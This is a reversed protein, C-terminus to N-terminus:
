QGGAPGQDAADEATSLIEQPVSLRPRWRYDYIVQYSFQLRDAQMGPPTATRVSVELRAPRLTRTNVWLLYDTTDKQRDPAGPMMVQPDVDLRFEVAEGGPLWEEGIREAHKVGGVLAAALNEPLFAGLEAEAAGPMVLWKGSVPHKLYLDQGQQYYEVPVQSENSLVQGALHLVLPSRQFEGTLGAEPFPYDQAHGAVDLRFRYHGARTMALGAAEVVAEPTMEGTRDIPYWFYAAVGCLLALAVGVRAATLSRRVRAAQAWQDPRLAANLRPDKARLLRM